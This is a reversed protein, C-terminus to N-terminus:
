RRFRTAFVFGLLFGIALVALPKDGALDKATQVHETIMRKATDVHAGAHGKLDAAIQAVDEKLTAIDKALTEGTQEISTHKM